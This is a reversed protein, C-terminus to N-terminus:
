LKRKDRVDTGSRGDDVEAKTDADAYSGAVLVRDWCLGM